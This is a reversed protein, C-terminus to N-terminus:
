KQMVRRAVVHDIAALMIMVVVAFFAIGMSGKAFAFPLYEALWSNFASLSAAFSEGASSAVTSMVNKTQEIETNTFAGTVVFAAAMIGLVILLGFLYSANELLRFVLPSKPAVLIRHVVSRALDARAELLPLHGLAADIAGLDKWVRSCERCDSIHENMARADDSTLRGDLLLNFQETSYHVSGNKM